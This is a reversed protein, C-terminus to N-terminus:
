AAPLLTPEDSEDHEESVPRSMDAEREAASDVPASATTPPLSRWPWEWTSGGPRGAAAGTPAAPGPQERTDSSPRRKQNPRQEDALNSQRAKHRFLHHDV